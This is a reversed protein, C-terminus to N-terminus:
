RTIFWHNQQMRSKTQGSDELPMQNTRQKTNNVRYYKGNVSLLPHVQHLESVKMPTGMSLEMVGLNNLGQQRIALSFGDSTTLSDQALTLEPRKRLLQPRSIASTTAISSTSNSHNNGRAAPIDHNHKGEYSTIVSKLDNSAREVHKRVSCGPNTCKYYSRPNPNGKVVKQGYKRWRYGDDLVDIESTTQVVVRPEHAGSSATSMDIVSADIKRRKSEAEEKEGDCAGWDDEEDSSISPDGFESTACQNYDQTTTTLLNGDLDIQSAMNELYDPAPVWHSLPPKIHNHAGKYIIKTIRHEHSQEVKKKMPCNLHACRYYTRPYDCGKVQKQGYKWWSYGDEAQEAIIVEADKQDNLPPSNDSSQFSDIVKELPNSIESSNSLGTQLNLNTQFTIATEGISTLSKNDASAFYSSYPEPHSKFAFLEPVEELTHHDRAKDPIRTASVLETNDYKNYSLKGTTPSLQAMNSLLKPSDLLTTPSLGPSITLYPSRVESTTSDLKASIIRTTNIKPTTFGSWAPRRESLGSRAIPKHVDIKSIEVSPGSSFRFGDDEKATSSDLKQKDTKMRPVDHDDEILPTFKLSFDDNLFNSISTPPWGGIVSNDDWGDM